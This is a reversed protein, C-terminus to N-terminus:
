GSMAPVSPLGSGSTDVGIAQLIGAYLTREPTVEDPLQGGTAPDWGYTMGTTPEVGGLVTNGPVLPSVILSGNNLEHGSGWETLGPQHTKTRGFDTALYILTHDMMTEGPCQPHEAGQLLDVLSDITDLMRQWMIGQTNRHQTHSYDFSLPPNLVVPGGMGTGPHPVLGWNPSLTVSVSIGHKLLLYALAAQSQLPDQGLFGFANQLAAMDAPDFEPLDASPLGFNLKALLEASEIQPLSEERQTQWRKLRESLQFSGWFASDPDLKDNRLSRALEVVDRDPHNEVGAVGDLSLPWREPAAVPEARAEPAISDDDGDARFGLSGMTVNPLALGAGYEIAVAEQLTRGNWAGNGTISRKQAVSHNVSTGTHTAVLMRDRHKNAFPSQMTSHDAQYLQSTRDVARFNSGPILVHEDDPIVNLTEAIDPAVESNGISLFSDIISAGGFGGLVVLYKPVKGGGGGDAARSRLGVGAAGAAAAAVIGRMLQRRGLRPRVTRPGVIRKNMTRKM